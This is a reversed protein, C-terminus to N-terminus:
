EGDWDVGDIVSEEVVHAAKPKRKPKAEEVVVVKEEVVPEMDTRAALAATAIYLDGSPIHRLMYSM